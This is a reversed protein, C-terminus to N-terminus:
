RSIALIPNLGIQRGLKEAMNGFNVGEINPNLLRALCVAFLANLNKDAEESSIYDLYNKPVIGM